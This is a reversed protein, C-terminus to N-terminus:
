VMLEIQISTGNGPSSVIDSKGNFYQVRYQVNLLGAGHTGPIVAPNFGQGNDEVTIEIKNHRITLQVLIQTASAHKLANNVLEHIIIYIFISATNDIKRKEGYQQFVVEIGSSAQLTNCYDTLAELLGFKMLAEPMLNHAIKRLDGITNDLMSLSRDFQLENEKSLPLTDKINLLSLKAGSLLGGLGDHLDKAIRSREEEQGKLMADVALLQKEKELEIIKQNHLAAQQAAIKNRNKVYQYGFFILIVLILSSAVLLTNVLTKQKNISSLRLIENDKQTREFKNQLDAAAVFNERSVMEDHMKINLLNYKNANKYDGALEYTESLGSYYRCLIRPTRYKEAISLGYLYYDIAAKYNKRSCHIRAIDVYYNIYNEQKELGRILREINGFLLLASDTKNLALYVGLLGNGQIILGQTDKLQQAISFGELMQHAADIREKNDNSNYFKLKGLNHMVKSIIRKDNVQTSVLLAETYFEIAKDLQENSHYISGLANLSQALINQYNYQESLRRATILYATAEAFRASLTYVRGLAFYTKAQLERLSDTNSHEIIWKGITTIEEIKVRDAQQIQQLYTELLQQTPQTNALLKQLSDPSHQSKGQTCLCMLMVVLLAKSYLVPKM